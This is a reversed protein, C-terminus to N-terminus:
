EARLFVMLHGLKYALVTCEEICNQTCFVLCLCFFFTYSSEACPQLTGSILLESDLDTWNQHVASVLSAVLV